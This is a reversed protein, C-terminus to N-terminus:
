TTPGAIATSTATRALRAGARRAAETGGITAMRDTYAADSLHVDGQVREWPLIRTQKPAWSPMVPFVPTFGARDRWQSLLRAAEIVV